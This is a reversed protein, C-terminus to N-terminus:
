ANLTDEPSVIAIVGAAKYKNAKAQVDELQMLGSPYYFGSPDAQPERTLPAQGTGLLEGPFEVIAATPPFPEGNWLSIDNFMVAEPADDLKTPDVDDRIGGGRTRTDTVKLQDINSPQSVRYIGLLLAEASDGTDFKVSQVASIV